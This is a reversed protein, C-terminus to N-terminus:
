TGAPFLDNLGRGTQNNNYGQIDQYQSAESEPVQIPTTPPTVWHAQHTQPDRYYIRGNKSRYYQIQQGQAAARAQHKKYLYYLAAAGVLLVVKKRTSMGQRPASAPAMPATTTGGRTDDVPPPVATQSPQGGCGALLMPLLLSAIVVRSVGRLVRDKPFLSTQAM